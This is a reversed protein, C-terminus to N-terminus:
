SSMINITIGPQLNHQCETFWIRDSKKVQNSQGIFPHHDTVAICNDVESGTNANGIFLSSQAMGRVTCLETTGSFTSTLM